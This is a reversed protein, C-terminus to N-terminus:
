AHEAVTAGATALDALTMADLETNIARQLRAFFHRSACASAHPCPSAATADQCAALVVPGELARVIEGMALETAPKALRYGGSRGRASVVLGASRLARVLEELYKESLFMRVAIERISTPRDVPSRALESMFVVGHHSRSSIRFNRSFEMTQHDNAM